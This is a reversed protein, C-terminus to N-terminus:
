WSSFHSLLTPSTAQHITVYDVALTNHPTHMVSSDNTQSCESTHDQPCITVVQSHVLITHDSSYTIKLLIYECFIALSLFGLLLRIKKEIYSVVVIM